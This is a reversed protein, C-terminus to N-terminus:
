GRAGNRPHLMVLQRDVVSTAFIEPSAADVAIGEILRHNPPIAMFASSSAVPTMNSDFRANLRQMAQAGLLSAVQARAAPSLGAGAAALRNAADLAVAADKAELAAGLRRRQLGMSNPFSAASRDIDAPSAFGAPALPWEAAPRGAEAPCSALSAAAALLFITRM